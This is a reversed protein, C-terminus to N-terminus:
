KITETFCQWYYPTKIIQLWLPSIAILVKFFWDHKTKNTLIDTNRTKNFTNSCLLEKCDFIGLYFMKGSYNRTRFTGLAMGMLTFLFCQDKFLSGVEKCVHPLASRRIATSSSITSHSGVCTRCMICTISGWNWRSKM